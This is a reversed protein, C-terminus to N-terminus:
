MTMLPSFLDLGLKSSKKLSLSPPIYFEMQLPSAVPCCLFTDVRWLPCYEGTQGAFPGHRNLSDILFCCQAWTEGVTVENQTFPPRTKVIKGMM